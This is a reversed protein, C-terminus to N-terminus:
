SHTIPTDWEAIDDFGNTTMKVKYSGAQMDGPIVVQLTEFWRGPDITASNQTDFVVDDSNGWESDLSMRVETSYAGVQLAKTYDLEGRTRVELTDGPFYAGEPDSVIAQYIEFAPLNPTIFIVDDIGWDGPTAIETFDEWQPTTNGWTTNLAYQHTDDNYGIIVISHNVYEAGGTDTSAVIPKGADIEAKVMEWIYAENDMLHLEAEWLPFDRWNLYDIVGPAMNSPYTGSDETRIFDAISDPNTAHNFYSSSNWTGWDYGLEAGAGRHAASAIIYEIEHTLTSADGPILDSLGRGDWYGFVMAIATPTCGYIWDYSPVDLLVMGSDGQTDQGIDDDDGMDGLVADASSTTDLFMAATTPSVSLLLRPELSEMSCPSIRCECAHSTDVSTHGGSQLRAITKRLSYSHGITGSSVLM